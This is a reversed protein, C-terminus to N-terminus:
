SSINSSNDHLHKRIKNKEKKVNNYRINVYNLEARFLPFYSFKPSAESFEIPLNKNVLQIAREKTLGVFLNKTLKVTLMQSKGVNVVLDFLADDDLQPWKQAFVGGDRFTNKNYEVKDFFGAWLESAFHPCFPALCILLDGLSREYKPGLFTQPSRLGSRLTNTFIQMDRIILNFQHTVEFNFNCKKVFENRAQQCRREHDTNIIEKAVTRSLRFNGVTMWLKDQWGAIGKFAIGPWKFRSTPACDGLIFLRTTDIGYMDTIDQPAIGNHKSKSMKDWYLSVPLGTDITKLNKSDSFDVRDKPVHEGTAEIRFTENLVMGQVIMRKFPEPSDSCGLGLERHMFYAMFRAYYLHMVAHELGGIYMDVPMMRNSILPDVLKKANTPDLFRMFYWSSDVFTDLTDTERKSTRRCKPCSTYIWDHIDALKKGKPLAPLQVPLDKERVPVPGCKECHVIPIPTGWYRQRSILWDRLCKSAPFGGIKASKAFDLIKRRAELIPGNFKGSNVIQDGDIVNLFDIYKMRAFRAHDDSSSPVGVFAGTAKPVDFDDENVFVPIRRNEDFPNRAYIQKTSLAQALLHDESIIIFAAGVMLEPRDTWVSLENIPLGEDLGFTFLIGRDVDGIWGKQISIIDGWGQLEDLGQFLDRSYQTTRVFWQDLLRREVKAGSRWSRGDSDVQEDALTTNDIPDWNVVAKKRYVLGREFLKIFLFQTWRYYTPDCTSIEREWNFSYNFERFQRTMSAINKETWEKPDEGHEIAANEAPLGFSDWGIPYIVNKGRMSYYRALLDGITYVRVHGMHLNGSPYPFMSLVYMKENSRHTKREAVKEKWFSEIDKKVDRTLAAGWEGSRSFLTRVFQAPKNFQLISM